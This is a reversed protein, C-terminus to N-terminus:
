RAFNKWFSIKFVYTGIVRVKKKEDCSLCSGCRRLDGRM